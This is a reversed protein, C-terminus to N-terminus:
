AVTSTSVSTNEQMLDPNREILKLAKEIVFDTLQEIFGLREALPIFITPPIQGQTPHNWRLLAECGTVKQTSAQIIPQFHVSFQKDKLAHLISSELSQKQIVKRKYLYVSLIIFYVCLLIWAESYM